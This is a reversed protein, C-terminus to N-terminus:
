SAATVDPRRYNVGMRALRRLHADLRQRFAAFDRGAAPSWLVEALACARPFAMYEVYPWDAMYETWLQGQAGLVHAAAGADLAAPVPEYGYVTELTCLGGIALPERERDASQYYDFYVKKNTAMVVDHGARAAAIGGDEGRWSMVVAGPALGGELIEDWGVLRRGRAQLFGDMQRVFWSQLGHEDRLGERRIRDQCKPCAKWREKPCEDGGIHIYASPFIALMEELVDRQLALARDNGACYVEKHVGFTRSVEFPGGTCSLEPYAALAAQCHGPMEIEPMVAIGRAAAFAVVARLDDQTYFGGHPRGDYTQSQSSHGAITERRWAGVGTLRPHSRVEARWGQDETLHWHFVNYKHFAMADVLRLIDSVPFFHRGVDLMLGRWGFRPWDAIRVAPLSWGDAAPPSEPVLQRLTQVANLFGARERAEVRVGDPAVTLRYGEPRDAGPADSASVFRIAPSSGGASPAAASPPGLRVGPDRALWEVLRAAALRSADSASDFRVPTAASLAFAGDLVALEVPKPVIAIM